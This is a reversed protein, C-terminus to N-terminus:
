CCSILILRCRPQGSDTVRLVAQYKEGNADGVVIRNTEIVLRGGEPMAENANVVLNLFMQKLQAPDIEIWVPVEGHRTILEVESGVMGALIPTLERMEKGLDVLQPTSMKQRSITLLRRSLHSSREAAERIWTLGETTPADSTRELLMEATGMVTTLMNNLDHAIGGAMRGLAEM